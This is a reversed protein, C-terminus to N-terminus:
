QQVRVPGETPQPMDYRELGADKARQLEFATDRGTRPQREYQRVAAAKQQDTMVAWQEKTYGYKNHTCSCLLLGATFAMLCVTPTRM